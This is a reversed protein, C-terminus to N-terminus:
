AGISVFGTMTPIKKQGTNLFCVIGVLAVSAYVWRASLPLHGRPLLHLRQPVAEHRVPRRRPHPRPLHATRLVQRAAPSARRRLLRPPRLQGDRVQQDGDSRLASARRRGGRGAASLQRQVRGDPLLRESGGRRGADVVALLEAHIIYLWYTDISRPSHSASTWEEYAEVGTPPSFSRPRHRM